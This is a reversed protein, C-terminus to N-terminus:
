INLIMFDNENKIEIYFYIIIEKDWIIEFKLDIKKIYWCMLM